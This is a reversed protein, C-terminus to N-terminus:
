KAKPVRNRKWRRDFFRDRGDDTVRDWIHKTTWGSFMVYLSIYFALLVPVQGPLNKAEPAIVAAMFAVFLYLAIFMLFALQNRCGSSYGKLAAKLSVSAATGIAMVWAYGAM